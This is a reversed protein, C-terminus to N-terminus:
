SFITLKDFYNLVDKTTEISKDIKNILNEETEYIINESIYPLCVARYVFSSKLNNSYFISIHLKSLILREGIIHTNTTITM